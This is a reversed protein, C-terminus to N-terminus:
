ACRLALHRETSRSGTRAGAREGPCCCRGAGRTRGWSSGHRTCALLILVHVCTRYPLRCLNGRGTGRGTGGGRWGGDGSLPSHREGHHVCGENLQGGEWCAAIARADQWRSDSNVVTFPVSAGTLGVPLTQEMPLPPFHTRAIQIIWCSVHPQAIPSSHHQTCVTISAPRHHLHLIPHLASPFPPCM